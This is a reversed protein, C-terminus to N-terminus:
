GGVLFCQTEVEVMTSCKGVKSDGDTCSQSLKWPGQPSQTGFWWHGIRLNECVSVEQFEMPIEHFKTEGNTGGLDM